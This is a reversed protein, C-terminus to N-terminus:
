LGNSRTSTSISNPRATTITDDATLGDTTVEVEFPGGAPRFRTPLNKARMAIAKARNRASCASLTSEAMMLNHTLTFHLACGHMIMIDRCIKATQHLSCPRPRTHGFLICSVRNGRLRACLTSRTDILKEPDSKLKEPFSQYTKESSKLDRCTM